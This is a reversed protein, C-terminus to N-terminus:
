LLTVVVLFVACPSRRLFRAGQRAPIVGLCVKIFRMWFLGTNEGREGIGM